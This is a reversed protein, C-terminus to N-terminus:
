ELLKTILEKSSLQGEEWLPIASDVDGLLIFEEPQMEGKLLEFYSSFIFKARHAFLVSSTLLIQELQVALNSYAQREQPHIELLDLLLDFYKRM